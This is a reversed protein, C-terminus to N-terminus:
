LKTAIRRTSGAMGCRDLFWVVPELAVVVMSGPPEPNHRSLFPQDIWGGALAIRNPIRSDILEIDACRQGPGTGDELPLSQPAVLTQSEDM